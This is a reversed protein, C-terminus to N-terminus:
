YTSCTVNLEKRRLPGFCEIKPTAGWGRSNRFLYMTRHGHLLPQVSFLAVLHLGSSDEWHTNGGWYHTCDTPAVGFFFNVSSM